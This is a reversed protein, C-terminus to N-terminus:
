SSSRVKETKFNRWRGREVSKNEKTQDMGLTMSITRTQLTDRPNKRWKRIWELPITLMTQLPPKHMTQTLQLLHLDVQGGTQLFLCSNCSLLQFHTTQLLDCKLCRCFDQILKLKRQILFTKVVKCQQRVAWNFFSRVSNDISEEFGSRKSLFTACKSM